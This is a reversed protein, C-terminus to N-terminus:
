KHHGAIQRLITARDCKPVKVFNKDDQAFQGALYDDVQKQVAPSRQAGPPNFTQELRDKGRQVLRNHALVITRLDECSKTRGDFRTSIIDNTRHLNILVGVGATASSGLSILSLAAILLVAWRPLRYVVVQDPEGARTENTM